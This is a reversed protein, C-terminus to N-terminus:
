KRNEAAAYFALRRERLEAATLPPPAAVEPELPAVDLPAVDLPAAVEPEPRKHLPEEILLALESGLRAAPVTEEGAYVTEIWVQCSDSITLITNANIYRFDYLFQELLERIDGEAEDVLRAVIGTAEGVPEAREVSVQQAGVSELIFTPVFIVDAYEETHPACAAYIVGGDYVVKVGLVGCLADGFLLEFHASPILITDNTGAFDDAGQLPITNIAQCTFM